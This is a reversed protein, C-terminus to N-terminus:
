RATCVRVVWRSVPNRALRGTGTLRVLGEQYGTIGLTRGKDDTDVLEGTFLRGRHRIRSGSDMPAEESRVRM